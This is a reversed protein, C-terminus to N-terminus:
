YGQDERPGDASWEDVSRPGSVRRGQGGGGLACKKPNVVYSHKQLLTMLAHM